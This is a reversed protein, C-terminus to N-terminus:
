ALVNELKGLESEWGAAARSTWEPSHLPDFELVMRVGGPAAHLEIVTEIAYAPVGPVFDVDHTYALRRNAEIAGYVIRADHAVAALEIARARWVRKFPWTCV